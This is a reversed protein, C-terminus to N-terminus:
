RTAVARHNQGGHEYGCSRCTGEAGGSIFRKCDFCRYGANYGGRPERAARRDDARRSEEDALAEGV